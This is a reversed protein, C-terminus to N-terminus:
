ALKQIEEREAGERNRLGALHLYQAAVDRPIHNAISRKKDREWHQGTFIYWSHEAHDYVYLPAFLQELLVADGYENKQFCSWIVDPSQWGNLVNGEKEVKMKERIFVKPPQEPEYRTVSEAIRQVEELPLPPDCQEANAAVLAALLVAKTAGRRRLSGAMSTLTNNRAGKIIREGLNQPAGSKEMAPSQVLKALNEVVAIKEPKNAWTYMAGKPHISPPCVVYGGEGKLDGGRIKMTKIPGPARLYIHYGHATRAVWTGRVLDIHNQAFERYAEPEDFDLVM